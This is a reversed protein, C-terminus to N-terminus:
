LNKQELLLKVNVLLGKRLRAFDIGSKRFAEASVVKCIKITRGGVEIRQM